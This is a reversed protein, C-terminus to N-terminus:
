KMVRRRALSECADLTNRALISTTVVGVGGPVPTIYGAVAAAAEYDVDGRLVGDAGANIGVDIVVAGPKICDGSIMHAKGAAAILIDARRCEDALDRTRTHCVTLTAHEALLLMALPKGVVLSRGVLTVRSGSIPIGYFRLLEMVASPTCPAHGSADGSFLKAMNTPSMCDVDKVPDIMTKVADRDIGAPMPSLALIGHVSQVDNIKKFEELFAANTIGADFTHIECKIGLSECRKVAGRVYAEDDPRAGIGVIALAPRAYAAALGAARASLESKAANVVNIGKLIVAAM